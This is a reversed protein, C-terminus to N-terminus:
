LKSEDKSSSKSVTKSLTKQASRRQKFFDQLLAVSESACVGGTVQAHHNLKPEKFVDIVSGAAGSKPDSAGYVLACLRANLIAGACMVCPELTVYLSCDELRYNGLVQGAQRLALIEAHACPDNLGLPANHSKAILEGQHFIVAGVPVEGALAAEQACLLAQGMREAHLGDWLPSGQTPTNM